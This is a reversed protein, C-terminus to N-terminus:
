PLDAGLDVEAFVGILDLLERCLLLLRRRRLSAVPLRRLQAGGRVTLARRHGHTADLIDEVLGDM